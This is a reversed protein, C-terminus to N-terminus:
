FYHKIYNVSVRMWPPIYTIRQAPQLVNILSDIFMHVADKSLRYMAFFYRDSVDFPDFTDRLRRRNVRLTARQRLQNEEEIQNFLMQVIFVNPPQAAMKFYIDREFHSKV